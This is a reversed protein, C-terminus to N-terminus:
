QFIPSYAFSHTPMKLEYQAWLKARAIVLGQQDLSEGELVRYGEGNSPLSHVYIDTLEHGTGRDAMQDYLRQGMEAPRAWVDRERREEKSWYYIKYRLPYQTSEHLTYKGASASKTASFLRLVQTSEAWESFDEEWPRLYTLHNSLTQRGIGELEDGRKGSSIMAKFGGMTNSSSVGM